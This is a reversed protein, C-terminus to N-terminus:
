QGAPDLQTFFSACLHLDYRIVTSILLTTIYVFDKDTCIGSHWLV